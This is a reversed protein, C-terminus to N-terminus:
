QATTFRIVANRRLRSALHGIADDGMYSQIYIMWQAETLFHDANAMLKSKIQLLWHKFQLKKVENTFVEPDSIKTSKKEGMSSVSTPVTPALTPSSPPPPTATAASTSLGAPPPPNNGAPPNPKHM